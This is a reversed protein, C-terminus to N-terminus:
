GQKAQQHVRVLIRELEPEEQLRENVWCQGDARLNEEVRRMDAGDGVVIKTVSSLPFPRQPVDHAVEVTAGFFGSPLPLFARPNHFLV